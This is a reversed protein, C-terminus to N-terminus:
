IGHLMYGRALNRANFIYECTCYIEYKRANDNLADYM